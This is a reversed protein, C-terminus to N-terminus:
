QDNRVVRVTVQRLAIDKNGGNSVLLEFGGIDGPTTIYFTVETDTARLDEIDIKGIGGDFTSSFSAQSLSEGEVIVEYKGEPLTCYPGFSVGEPHIYRVGDIDEGQNLYQNNSFGWSMVGITEPDIEEVNDLKWTLGIVYGDAEYYHLDFQGCRLRFKNNFIYMTDDSPNELREVVLEAPRTGISHAYHYYNQDMDYRDAYEAFQYTIEINSTYIDRLMLHKVKGTEGIADWAPSTLMTSYAAEQQSSDHRGYLVPRIDYLQLFVFVFIIMQKLWYPCKYCGACIAFITLIYVAPWILRGTARFVSWIKIIVSPLPITFLTRGFATVTPSVAAVLSVGCIVLWPLASLVTNVWWSKDRLLNRENWVFLVFSVPLLALIGAGLYAYGEVQGGGTTNLTPLLFSWGNPNLFGNLNFSYTGLGTGGAVANGSFGGLLYVTVAACGIYSVFLVLVRKFKRASIFDRCVFGLLIMGCIALFYPHISACLIGLIGWGILAHRINKFYEEYYVLYIIGLLILWHSALSTHMYMRFICIVSTTFVFVGMGVSLTSKLYKELIKASFAGQLAFCLLGWWGFYQFTEPLIPSLLKFFVAAIPISDLYIITTQLPYSLTDFLGIPFQWASKRFFQWGQYHQTLDGQSALLWEDYTPNLIKTGYLYIFCAVGILAGLIMNRQNWIKKLIPKLNGTINEM